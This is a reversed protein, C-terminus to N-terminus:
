NYSPYEDYLYHIASHLNVGMVERGDPSVGDSHCMLLIPRRLGGLIQSILFDASDTHPGNLSFPLCIYYM